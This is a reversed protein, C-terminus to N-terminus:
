RSGPGRGPPAAAGRWPASCCRAGRCRRPPAPRAAPAPARPTPRRPPAPARSRRGRAPSPPPRPPPPPSRGPPPRPGAARRAGPAGGAPPPTRPATPALLRRDQRRPQDRPGRRVRRERREGHAEGGGPAGVREQLAPPRGRREEDGAAEPVQEADARLLPGVQERQLHAPRLRQVALHHLHRLPQRRVPAHQHRQVRAGEGRRQRPEPRRPHPARRHRQHVGEAVRAVLVREAVEEQSAPNSVTEQEESAAGKM